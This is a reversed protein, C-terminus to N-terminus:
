VASEIARAQFGDLAGKAEQEAGFQVGRLREFLNARLQVARGVDPFEHFEDFRRLAAEM